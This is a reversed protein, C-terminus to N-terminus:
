GIVFLSVIVINTHNCSRTATNTKLLFPRYAPYDREKEIGLTCVALKIVVCPSNQVRVVAAAAALHGKAFAISPESTPGRPPDDLHRLVGLLGPATSM